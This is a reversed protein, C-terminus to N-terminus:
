FPGKPFNPLALGNLDPFGPGPNRMDVVEIAGALGTGMSTGDGATGLLRCHYYYMTGPLATLPVVWAFSEGDPIGRPYLTDSTFTADDAVVTRLSGGRNIWQLIAGPRVKLRVPLFQANISIQLRESKTSNGVFFITNLTGQNNHYDTACMELRHMGPQLSPRPLSAYWYGSALDYQVKSTLEEGDLRMTISDAKVGSGEDEIIAGIALLPNANSFDFGAMTPLIASFTPPDIDPSMTSFHYITGDSAAVLLHKGDTVPLGATIDLTKGMALHYRWTMKGSDRAYTALLGNKMCVFLQNGILLPSTTASAPLAMGDKGWQDHGTKTDLAHLRSTTTSVYVSAGDLTVTDPTMDRCTYSWDIPNTMSGINMSYITDASCVLVTRGNMLPSHHIPAQPLRTTWSDLTGTMRVIRGSLFCLIVADGIRLPAAEIEDHLSITTKEKGTRPDLVDLTAGKTAYVLADDAALPGNLVHNFLTRKWVQAGDEPNFAFVGNGTTSVIIKDHLLLIGGLPTDLLEKTWRVEGTDLAIGVLKKGFAVIFTNGSLLGNSPTQGSYGAGLSSKWVLTPLTPFPTDPYASANGVGRGGIWPAASLLSAVLLSLATCVGCQIFRVM